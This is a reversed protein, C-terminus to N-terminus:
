WQVESRCLDLWGGQSCSKTDNDSGISHLGNWHLWEIPFQTYDGERHLHTDIAVISSADVHNVPFVTQIVLIVVSNRLYQLM